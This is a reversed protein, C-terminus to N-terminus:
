KIVELLEVEFILVSNAPISGRTTSGYGLEPPIVLKRKGGVKMDVLGQDWGAIVEGKGLNFQFPANRDYSSDFKQGNEFTGLYNVSIRDGAKVAEGTGARLDTIQLDVKKVVPVEEKVVEKTVEKSIAAPLNETKIPNQTQVKNNLKSFVFILAVLLVLVIIFIYEKKM